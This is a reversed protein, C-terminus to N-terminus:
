AAISQWKPHKAFGPAESGSVGTYWPSNHAASEGEEASVETVVEKLVPVFGLLAPESPHSQGHCGKRVEDLRRQLLSQNEM